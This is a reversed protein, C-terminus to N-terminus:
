TEAFCLIIGFIMIWLVVTLVKCLFVPSTDPMDRTFCVAEPLGSFGGPISSLRGCMFWLIFTDLSVNNLM